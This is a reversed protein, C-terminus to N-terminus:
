FLFTHYFVNQNGIKFPKFQFKTLISVRDTEPVPGDLAVWNSCWNLHASKIEVNLNAGGSTKGRHRRKWIAQHNGKHLQGGLLYSEVNWKLHNLLDIRRDWLLELEADSVPTEGLILFVDPIIEIM